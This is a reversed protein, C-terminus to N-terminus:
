PPHKFLSLPVVVAQIIGLKAFYALVIRKILVISHESIYYFIPMKTVKCHLKCYDTAPTMLDGLTYLM